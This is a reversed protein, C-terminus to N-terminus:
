KTKDGKDIAAIAARVLYDNSASAPLEVVRVLGARYVEARRKHRRKAKLARALKAELSQVIEATTM